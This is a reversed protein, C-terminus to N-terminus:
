WTHLVSTNPLIHVMHSNLLTTGKHLYKWEVLTLRYKKGGQRKWKICHGLCKAEWRLAVGGWLGTVAQPDLPDNHRPRLHEGLTMYSTKRSLTSLAKWSAWILMNLIDQISAESLLWLSHSYKNHPDNGTAPMRDQSPWWPWWSHGINLLKSLRSGRPNSNPTSSLCLCLVLKKTHITRPNRNFITASSPKQFYKFLSSSDNSYIYLKGIHIGHFTNPRIFQVKLKWKSSIHVWLM